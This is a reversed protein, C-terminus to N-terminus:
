VRQGEFEEEGWCGDGEEQRQKVWDLHL